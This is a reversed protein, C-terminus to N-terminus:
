DDSGVGSVEAADRRDLRADPVLPAGTEQNTYRPVDKTGFAPDSSKEDAPVDQLEPVMPEIEDRTPGDVM